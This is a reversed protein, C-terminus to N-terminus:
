YDLFLLSDFLFTFRWRDARARLRSSVPLNKFTGSRMFASVQSEFCHLITSHLPSPGIKKTCFILRLSTSGEDVGGSDIIVLASLM